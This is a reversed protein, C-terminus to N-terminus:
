LHKYKKLVNCIGAIVGLLFLSIIFIYKTELVEDLIYGIVVGAVVCSFFDIAYSMIVGFDGTLQNKPSSINNNKNYCENIKRKIESYKDVM